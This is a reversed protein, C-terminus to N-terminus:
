LNIRRGLIHFAAVLAILFFCISFFSDEEFETELMRSLFYLSIFLLLAAFPLPVFFIMVYIM